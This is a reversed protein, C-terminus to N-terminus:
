IPNPHNMIILRATLRHSQNRGVGLMEGTVRCEAPTRMSVVCFVFPLRRVTRHAKKWTLPWREPALNLKFIAQHNRKKQWMQLISLIRVSPIEIWDELSKELSLSLSFRYQQISGRFRLYMKKIEDLLPHPFTQLGRIVCSCKNGHDQSTELIELRTPMILCSRKWFSM